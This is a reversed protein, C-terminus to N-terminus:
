ESLIIPIDCWKGKHWEVVTKYGAEKLTKLAEYRGNNIRDPYHSDSNVQVRIGLQFMYKFYRENPYFTGLDKYSKTNIEVIYGFSSILKLYNHLLEDYWSEDLLGKHYCNANYHIKDCHGLIDFGGLEIMKSLQHYYLEIVYKLDGDFYNDVIYKFKDSPCDIDVLKNNKDYLLHVSGIRFDLPLKKFKPISPNSSSNIYDIELGLALEIVDAYKKKLRNFEAFYDDMRDWEMTWNTPFPLPAHSSFGFSSFRQSVAFRIFSEMDARGDCYLSHCHYNTLNM